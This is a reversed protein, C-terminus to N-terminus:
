RLKRVQGVALRNGQLQLVIVALAAAARYLEAAVAAALLLLTNLLILRILKNGRALTM